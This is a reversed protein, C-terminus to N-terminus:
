HAPNTEKAFRVLTFHGLLPLARRELPHVGGHREAWHALREWRFETRWGLRRAVPTLWQDFAWRLGGEASLHNVLIIEGGQKTVRAIENLAAEPNPVATIVFQVVVVDFSADPLAMQQADMVALLEVNSIGHVNVREQARRLMPASIDIGVLRNNCKYSILSIGTGVGVELIRGGAPGVHQEAAAISAMRGRRFVGGFVIDYIPAWRAYAKDITDRDLTDAMDDEYIPLM